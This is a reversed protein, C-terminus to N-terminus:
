KEEGKVWPDEPTEKAEKADEKKAGGAAPAANKDNLFSFTNLDIKSADWKSSDFGLILMFILSLLITGIIFGDDKGFGKCLRIIAIIGLIVGALGGLFPILCALIWLPNIKVIKLLTIANYIPIISKWGEEGCKTFIKWMAVVGAVSVILAPLFLLALVGGFVAFMGADTADLASSNYNYNYSYSMLYNLM